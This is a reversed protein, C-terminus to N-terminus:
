RLDNKEAKLKGETIREIRRQTFLPIFGRQEWNNFNTHSMYTQKEFNYSTGFYKKVDDLTM